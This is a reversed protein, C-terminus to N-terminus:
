LYNNIFEKIANNVEEPKEVMVMHGAKDIIILKSNKIKEHFFKSYKPPTLSDATGCIILCPVDILQVKDIIDFNDCIKFDNYIVEPNTKAMENVFTNIIEKSTKRYFAGIPFGDLFEQFNNKLSNLIVPSVRLRAGTACL